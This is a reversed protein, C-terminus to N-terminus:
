KMPATFRYIYAEQYEYQMRDAISHFWPDEPNISIYGKPPMRRMEVSFGEQFFAEAIDNLSHLQMPITGQRDIQKKYHLLSPNKSYDTYTCYYVGGPKLAKKIKWAHEKLNQILYIVSISFALDFVHNFKEVNATAEYTLLLDKKRKNAVEISKRALDIGIGKSFPKQRYLFRLFGGQNCGFDLVTCDQINQEEIMDLVKHWHAQHNDEMSQEGNADDNWWVDYLQQDSM